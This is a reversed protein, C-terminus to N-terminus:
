RGAAIQQAWVVAREAEGEQLPGEKGRVFFGAPTGVLTAGAEQLNTAIRPAAYGFIRVWRSTLRTDFAAVRQGAAAHAPVLSLFNQIAQTPRGGQTPSGIILLDVAELEAANVEGVPLARAENGIAAGIQQAIKATNGYVSDYVVLTKM